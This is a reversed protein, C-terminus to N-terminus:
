TAPGNAMVFLHHRKPYVPGHQLWPCFVRTKASIASIRTEFERLPCCCNCELQGALSREIVGAVPETVEHGEAVRQELEHAVDESADRSLRWRISLWWACPITKSVRLSDSILTRYDDQRRGDGGHRESSFDELV